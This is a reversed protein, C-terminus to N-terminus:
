ARSALAASVSATAALVPPVQAVPKQKSGSGGNRFPLWGKSFSSTLGGEAAGAGAAGEAAGAEALPALFAM